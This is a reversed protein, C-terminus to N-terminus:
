AGPDILGVSSYDIYGTTCACAFANGVNSGVTQLPTLWLMPVVPALQMIEKDLKAYEANQQDADTLKAIDAFRKNIAPDNLMSGNQNGTKTIRTGDFLPSLLPYGNLWSSCWGTVQIPSQQAPTQIVDYYTSSDLPKQKVKIGVKGLSDQLANAFGQWLPLGRVDMSLEFGDGVGAESLLQKAKAVDGASNESPYLDFEEKDPVGPLLMDNAVLAMQPGGAATILAQKDVAYQIAQRVKVNDLPKIDTRINMFYTCSPLDRVIRSRTQPNQIQGVSSPQLPDTSAAIVNKDNAQGALMRQDLASGDIGFQFVFADPYAPRTPDTAPDWNPNRELEVKVGPNNSKLQYPGSGYVNSDLFDASPVKGKPFPTLPGSGTLEYFSPFPRKLKFTITKDDPTTISDLGKPDAYAGEYKDAGVILQQLEDNGINNKPDLAREFGYKFDQAKIPTGDSYKIGDKLTFTWETADANPKGLDTALDPVTETGVDGPGRKNTTLGRYILNYFNNVNGDNGRAPDLHSFPSSGLVTVTGGKKAAPGRVVFGNQDFQAAGSAAAGSGSAAGSGATGGASGQPAPQTNGGGAPAGQGAPGSGGKVGSCASVLLAGTAVM